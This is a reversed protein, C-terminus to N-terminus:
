AETMCCSKFRKGSGCGCRSRPSIYTRGYKALEERKAKVLNRVEVEKLNLSCDQNLYENAWANMPKVEGTEPNM